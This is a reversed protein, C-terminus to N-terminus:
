LYMIATYTPIEVITRITSIGEKKYGPRRRIKCKVIEEMKCQALKCLICITGRSTYRKARFRCFSLFKRSKICVAGLVRGFGWCGAARGAGAGHGLDASGGGTRRARATGWTLQVAARLADCGM